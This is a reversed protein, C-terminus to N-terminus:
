PRGERNEASTCGADRETKRAQADAAAARILATIVAVLISPEVPEQLYAEAGSELAEPYHHDVKGVSSIHLVPIGSTKPNSKLSRCVAFGNTDPLQIDLLVLVPQEEQALRLADSGNAAELVEYGESRLLRGRMYRNTENDDVCLIAQSQRARADPCSDPPLTHAKLDGVQAGIRSATPKLESV